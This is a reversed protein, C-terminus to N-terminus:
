LASLGPETSSPAHSHAERYECPVLCGSVTRKTQKEFNDMARQVCHDTGCLHDLPRVRPTFSIISGPHVTFPKGRIWPQAQENIFISGAIYGAFVCMLGPGRCFSYRCRRCRPYSVEELKLP